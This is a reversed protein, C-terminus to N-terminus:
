DTEAGLLIQEKIGLPLPRGKTEQGPKELTTEEPHPILVVEKGQTHGCVQVLTCILKSDSVSPLCQTHQPPSKRSTFVM